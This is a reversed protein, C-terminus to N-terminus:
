AGALAVATGLAVFVFVFIAAIAVRAASVPSHHVTYGGLTDWYTTGTRKLNDDALVGTALGFPTHAGTGYAWVVAARRLAHRFAPRRGFADRVAIGLLWKGPTFGWRALLVAEIPLWIFSTLMAAAPAVVALTVAILTWDTVRALLRLGSRTGMGMSPSSPVPRHLPPETERKRRPPWLAFSGLLFMLVGYAHIIGVTLLRDAFKPMAAITATVALPRAVEAKAGQLIASFAGSVVQYPYAAGVRIAKGIGLVEQKLGLQVGLRRDPGVDVAFRLERGQRQVVVDVPGGSRAALAPRLDWPHVIPVGAVSVFLDNEQLGAAGAPSSPLVGAITTGEGPVTAGLLLGIMCLLAAFVYVALPGALTIALRAGPRAHAFGSPQAEGFPLVRDTVSFASGALFRGAAFFAFCAAFGVGCLFFTGLLAM